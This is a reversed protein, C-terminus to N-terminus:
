EFYKWRPIVILVVIIGWVLNGLVSARAVHAGVLMGVVTVAGYGYVGWKKWM